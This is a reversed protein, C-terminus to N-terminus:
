GTLREEQLICLKLLIVIDSGNSINGKLVCQGNIYLAKIGFFLTQCSLKTFKAMTKRKAKVPIKSTSQNYRLYLFDVQVLAKILAKQYKACVNYQLFKLLHGHELLQGDGM